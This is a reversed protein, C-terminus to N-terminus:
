EPKPSTPNTTRASKVSKFRKPTLRYFVVGHGSFALAPQGEHLDLNLNLNLSAVELNGGYISVAMCNFLKKFLILTGTENIFAFLKLRVEQNNEDCVELTLPMNDGMTQFSILRVNISDELRQEDLRLIPNPSCVPNTEPDSKLLSRLSCPIPPHDPCIFAIPLPRPLQSPPVPLRLSNPDLNLFVQALEPERHIFAEFYNPITSPSTLFKIGELLIKESFDVASLTADYTEISNSIAQIIENEFSIDLCFQDRIHKFLQVLRVLYAGQSRLFTEPHQQQIVTADEPLVIKDLSLYRIRLPINGLNAAREVRGLDRYLLAHFCISELPDEQKPRMLDHLYVQSHSWHGYQGFPSSSSPEYIVMLQEKQGGSDLGTAMQTESDYVFAMMLGNREIVGGVLGLRHGNLHLVFPNPVGNNAVDELLVLIRGNIQEELLDSDHNYCIKSYQGHNASDPKKPIILHNNWPLTCPLVDDLNEKELPTESLLGLEIAVLKLKPCLEANSVLDSGLVSQILTLAALCFPLKM